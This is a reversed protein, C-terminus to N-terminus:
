EEKNTGNFKHYNDIVNRVSGHLLLLRHSEDYSLNLEEMIMKSGREILKQNTLQMDVMKNGKVRGLKIMTTTTLMNLILKQATGAKMRTSGTVFEPGVLAELPVDVNKALETNLIVPLAPQLYDPKKQM